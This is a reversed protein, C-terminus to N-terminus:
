GRGHELRHAATFYSVQLTLWVACVCLVPLVGSDLLFMLLLSVLWMVLCATVGARFAQYGAAHIIQKQAEDCSDMWTKQFSMDLLSGRKEPNLQKEIDVIKKNIAFGLFMAALFVAMNVIVLTIRLVASVSGQLSLWTLTPFLAMNIVQMLTTVVMPGGLQGELADLAEEDDPGLAAARAASRRLEWWSWCVVGVNLLVYVASLALCLAPAAADLYAAPDWGELDTVSSILWGVGYGVLLCLVFFLILRILKKKESLEKKM